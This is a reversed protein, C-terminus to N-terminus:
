QQWNPKASFGTTRQYQPPLGSRRAAGLGTCPILAKRKKSRPRGVGLVNMDFEKAHKAVLGGISGVGIVGVMRGQLMAWRSEDGCVPVFFSRRSCMQYKIIANKALALMLMMGQEAIAIANAGATNALKAKRPTLLSLAGIQKLDDVGM